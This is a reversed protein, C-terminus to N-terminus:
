VADSCLMVVGCVQLANLRRDIDSIEGTTDFSHLSDGELSDGELGEVTLTSLDAVGKGADRGGRLGGVGTEEEGQIVRMDMDDAASGNLRESGVSNLSDNTADLSHETFAGGGDASNTAPSGMDGEGGAENHVAGNGDARSEERDESDVGRDARGTLGPETERDSDRDL